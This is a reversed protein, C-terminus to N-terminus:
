QHGYATYEDWKSQAYRRLKTIIKHFGSGDDGAYKSWETGAPPINPQGGEVPPGSYIGIYKKGEPSASPNKGEANDAYYIYTANDLLDLITLSGYARVM